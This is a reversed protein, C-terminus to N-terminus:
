GNDGGLALLLARLQGITPTTAWEEGLVFLGGGNDMVFLTNTPDSLGTYENLEDHSLLSDAEFGMERLVNETVPRPDTLDLFADKAAFVDRRKLDHNRVYEEAGDPRSQDRRLREVAARLDVM